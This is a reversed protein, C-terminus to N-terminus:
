LVEVCYALLMEKIVTIYIEKLRKNRMIVSLKTIQNIQTKTYGEEAARQKANRVQQDLRCGAKDTLREYSENRAAAFKNGFSYIFNDSKAIRSIQRNVWQITDEESGISSFTEKITQTTKELNEIQKAQKEQEAAQRQQEIVQRSMNGVLLNMLQIDAPLKELEIKEERMEFYEDMLQDHIDWAFDTDMIKILKAYGRESLIYIHEAQTISQKAYGLETLLDLTGTEGVREKIDIFDINEKFRKINQTIRERVHKVQMGHLESITKDSMCKKDEGFGGLVVPIVKGMFNQTGTVTLEDKKM